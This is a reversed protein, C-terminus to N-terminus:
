PHAIEVEIEEQSYLKEVINEIKCLLGLSPSLISRSTLIVLISWCTLGLCDAGEGGVHCAVYLIRM